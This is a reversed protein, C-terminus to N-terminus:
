GSARLRVLTKKVFPLCKQTPFPIAHCLQSSSSPVQGKDGPQLNCMHAGLTALFDRSKLTNSTIIDTSYNDYRLNVVTFVLQPSMKIVLSLTQVDIPHASALGM